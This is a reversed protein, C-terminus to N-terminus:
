IESIEQKKLFIEELHKMLSIVDQEKEWGNREAKTEGEKPLINHRDLSNRLDPHMSTYRCGLQTGEETNEM